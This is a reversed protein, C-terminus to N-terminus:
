SWDAVADDEVWVCLSLMDMVAVCQSYERLPDRTHTTFSLTDLLLHTDTHTHLSLFLEVSFLLFQVAAGYTHAYTACLEIMMAASSFHEIHRMQPNLVLFPSRTLTRANQSFAGGYTCVGSLVSCCLFFSMQPRHQSSMEAHTHLFSHLILTHLYIQLQTHTPFRPLIITRHLVTAYNGPQFLSM